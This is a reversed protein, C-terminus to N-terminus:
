KRLYKEDAKSLAAPTYAEVRMYLDCKERLVAIKQMMPSAHHRDLAAQDAWGDILLVTEKDEAPFFYEYRLNGEEARIEDVLGSSLMEAAFGRAAGGRGSYYINVIISM